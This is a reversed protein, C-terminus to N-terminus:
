NSPTAKGYIPTAPFRTPIVRYCWATQLDFGRTEMWGALLDIVARNSMDLDAHYCSVSPTAILQAIMEHTNPLHGNM